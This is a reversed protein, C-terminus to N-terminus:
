VRERCSARGIQVSRIRPNWEEWVPGQHQYLSLCGYYWYYFNIDNDKPLLTQLYSATEKMRPETPAAGLLQRCFMGEAAMAPRPAKDQYGYLGGQEGGGVRDLWQAARQMTEPPIQLGALRASKLAMVQWGFVSTDGEEGPIYRWGGTDKNQAAVIFAVCRQLPELLKADRTLGYAEALAMTGMGQDYM